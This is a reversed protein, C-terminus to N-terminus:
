IEKEKDKLTLKLQYRKIRDTIEKSVEKMLNYYVEEGKGLLEPQFESIYEIM